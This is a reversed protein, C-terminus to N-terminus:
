KVRAMVAAEGQIGFDETEYGDDELLEGGLKEPGVAAVLIVYAFCCGVFMAIPIRFDYNQTVVGSQVTTPVPYRTAIKAIITNSASAVLSAMQYSTGVM